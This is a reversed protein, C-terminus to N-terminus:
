EGGGGRAARHRTILYVAIALVALGVITGWRVEAPRRDSTLTIVVGILLLGATVAQIRRFPRPDPLDPGPPGEERREPPDPVSV